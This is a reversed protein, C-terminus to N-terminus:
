HYIMPAYGVNFLIALITKITATISPRKNKFLSSCLVTYIIYLHADIFLHYKSSHNIIYSLIFSHALSSYIKVQLTLSAILAVTALCFNSRMATSGTEGSCGGSVSLFYKSLSAKKFSVKIDYTPNFSPLFNLSVTNKSSRCRHLDAM